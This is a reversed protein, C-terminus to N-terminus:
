SKGWRARAARSSADSRQQPTMREARRKGGIKGGRRGMESMVRSIDSIPIVEGADQTSVRVTEFAMENIDRAPKRKSLRKPMGGDHWSDM